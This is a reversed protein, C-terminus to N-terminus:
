KLISNKIAEESTHFLQGNNFPKRSVQFLSYKKILSHFVSVVTAATHTFITLHNEFVITFRYTRSILPNPPWPPPFTFTAKSNQFRSIKFVLPSFFGSPFLLTQYLAQNPQPSSFPETKSMDSIQVGLM